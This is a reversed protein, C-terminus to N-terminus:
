CIEMMASTTISTKAMEAYKRVPIQVQTLEVGVLTALRLEVTNIAAMVLCWIETTANSTIGHGAMEAFRLVILCQTLPHTGATGDLESRATLVAMLMLLILIVITLGHTMM